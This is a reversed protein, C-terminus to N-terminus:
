CGEILEAALAVRDEDIGVRRRRLELEAAPVLDGGPALEDTGPWSDAGANGAFSVLLQRVDEAVDRDRRVEGPQRRVDVVPENM